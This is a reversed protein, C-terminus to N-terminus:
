ESKLYKLILAVNRKNARFALDFVDGLLPISGILVDLLVNLVMRLYVWRSLGFARAKWILWGSLLGTFVDGVIPILGLIFDLGIPIKTGPFHWRSEMLSAFSELRAILKRKSDDDKNTNIKSM